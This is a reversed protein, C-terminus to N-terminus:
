PKSSAPAPLAAESDRVSPESEHELILHAAGGPPWPEANRTAASSTLVRLLAARLRPLGPPGSSGRHARKFAWETQLALRETHFPGASIVMDWRGEARGRARATRRAGGSLEGNHQRLRRARDVTAGIYVSIRPPGRWVLGYVFWPRPEAKSDASSEARSDASSM